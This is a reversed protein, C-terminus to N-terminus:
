HNWKRCGRFCKLTDFVQTQLPRFTCIVFFYSSHMNLCNERHGNQNRGAPKSGGGLYRSTLPNALSFQVYAHIQIITHVLGTSYQCGMWANGQEWHYSGPISEPDKIVRVFHNICHLFSISKNVLLYLPYSVFCPTYPTFCETTKQLSVAKIEGSCLLM